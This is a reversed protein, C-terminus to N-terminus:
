YVHPVPRGTAAGGEGTGNLGIGVGRRAVPDKGLWEGYRNLIKGACTPGADTAVLTPAM